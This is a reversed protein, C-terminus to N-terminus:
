CGSPADHLQNTLVREVARAITLDERTGIVLIRAPSDPRAIDADPRCAQNADSDLELGFAGLGECVDARVAAAHEGVGATFVLADLGGLSAAMAGVGSRIRHAYIALALRARENGADAAAQVARLDASVGSVGLLGSERNLAGDVADASLGHRRQVEVVVGPDVSGSRTGMMLGELPTYGMTTDISRGDRVAALSCGQGLHAVVVRRSRDPGLLERARASCYAHSLGHFGYRRIGWDATWTYPVPYIRAEPPLTTHFATDFAAVHIAHPLAAEAAILAALSPPNHLPALSILAELEHRVEPTIRVAETFRPGGHVVRHGVATVRSVDDLVPPDSRKLDALARPVVDAYSRGIDDAAVPRGGAPQFAYHAADGSWDAHGEALTREGDSEILSFKLSSSGANLVLILM